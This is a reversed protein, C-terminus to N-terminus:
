IKVKYKKDIQTISLPVGYMDAAEVITLESEAMIAINDNHVFIILGARMIRRLYGAHGLLINVSATLNAEGQWACFTM